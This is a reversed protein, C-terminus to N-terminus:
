GGVSSPSSNGPESLSARFLEHAREYWRRHRVQALEDATPFQDPDLQIPVRPHRRGLMLDFSLRGSNGEYTGRHLMHASFILIDGPQLDFSRASPLDEWSGHGARELRVDRERDTDWRAHSGPVLMFSREPRLPIRIHLNCLEGLLAQQRSEDCRMYQIDRHWYPRRRGGLPNFFMQTGHFYLQEGFLQTVLGSLVPDALADFFVAREASFESPFYRSATLSHSNVLDQRRAEESQEELWQAHVRVGIEFIRRFTEPSLLSRQLVFGDEDYSTLASM